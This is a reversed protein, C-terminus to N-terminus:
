LKIQKIQGEILHLPANRNFMSALTIYLDNFRNM